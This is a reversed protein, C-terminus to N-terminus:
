VPSVSRRTFGTLCTSHHHGRYVRSSSLKFGASPSSPVWCSFGPLRAESGELPLWHSRWTVWDTGTTWVVETHNSPAQSQLGEARERCHQAGFGLGAWPLLQSRPRQLTPAGKGKCGATWEPSVGPASPFPGGPGAIQFGKSRAGTSRPREGWGQRTESLTAGCAVPKWAVLM